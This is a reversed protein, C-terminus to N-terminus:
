NLSVWGCLNWRVAIAVTGSCSFHKIIERCSHVRHIRCRAWHMTFNNPIFFWKYKKQKYPNFCKEFCQNYMIWLSTRPLICKTILRALDHLPWYAVLLDIELTKSYQLSQFSQLLNNEPPKSWPFFTKIVISPSAAITRWHGVLLLKTVM